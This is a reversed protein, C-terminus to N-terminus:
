TGKKASSRAFPLNSIYSLPMDSYKAGIHRKQLHEIKIKYIM